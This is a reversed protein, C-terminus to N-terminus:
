RPNPLFWGRGTGSETPDLKCELPCHATPLRSYVAASCLATPTPSGTRQIGEASLSCTQGGRDIDIKKGQQRAWASRIGDSGAPALTLGARAPRDAARGLQEMQKSGRGRKDYLVMM